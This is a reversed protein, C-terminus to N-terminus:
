GKVILDTSSIATGATVSPSDASTSLTGDTQVFYTQGITLSSSASLVVATGNDSNGADQFATVAKNNSSDYAISIEDARASEFVVPSTFSVSTGSISATVATGYSSNGDDRYAIVVVNNNSDFVSSIGTTAASEFTSATGFSISTGSVTGVIAKGHESDGVDVYSILVKGANSDFVISKGLNNKSGTSTDFVAESGFSISTGSVTGVIATGQNSNGADTYAIVVKNNTSDFAARINLTDGANFVTATGFSISTGSVTGVIATGHESNAQDEYAIVVKNNSSDFAIATSFTQASEFVVPTGFSISTGSVTGVVATGYQSNGEDEYVIVVKNANSDFVISNENLFGVAASEFVTPSGFSIDTGSVTGVIATGHESNGEDRYATVIKNNSSDFTSGIKATTASEFVVATGGSLTIPEGINDRAISNATQITAVAGDAVNDKAFGIFNETTINSESFALAVVSGRSNITSSGDGSEGYVVLHRKNTTDYAVKSLRTPNTTFINVSSFSIDTGSVTGIHGVCSALTTTTDNAVARDSLVILTKNADPNYSAGAFSTNGSSANSIEVPTGYSVDTGSITAVVVDIIGNASEPYCAVFKGATSDFTLAYSSASGASSSISNESGFSISTGSVTGVICTPRNSNANDRYLVLVKNNSTDFDCQSHQTNGSNFVTESGFTVDTGSVTGVVATGYDSNGEDRYTVIVKNNSSDFCSGFNECTGNNFTAVSGFSVSTGSITGVVAKGKSSDGGDRYFVVMKNNSSDFTVSIDRTSASNFVVGTGYSVSNDSPDVTAVIATGYDSNDDDTYTILFKNNSTDFAVEQQDAIELGATDYVVSTGVAQTVSTATASIASVTGASNVIVPKGATIAGSATAVVESDSAINGVFKM